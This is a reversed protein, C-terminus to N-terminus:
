ETQGRISSSSRRSSGGDTIIGIVGGPASAAIVRLTSQKSLAVSLLLHNYKTDVKHESLFFNYDKPPLKKKNQPFIIRWPHDSLQM